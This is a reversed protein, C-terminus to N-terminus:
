VYAGVSPELQAGVDQLFKKLSADYHQSLVRFRSQSLEFIDQVFCNQTGGKKNKVR